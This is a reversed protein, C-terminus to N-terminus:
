KKLKEVVSVAIKRQLITNQWGLIRLFIRRRRAIKSDAWSEIFHLNGLLTCISSTHCPKAFPGLKARQNGYLLLGARTTLAQGPLLIETLTDTRNRAVVLLVIKAVVLLLIKPTTSLFTVSPRSLSNRGKVFILLKFQCILM